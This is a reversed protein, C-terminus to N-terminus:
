AVAASTDPLAFRERTAWWVGGMIMGLPIELLHSYVAFLVVAAAAAVGDAGFAIMLGSALETVGIGGPTLPVMTLMRSLAYCAFVQALPLDIGFQRMCLWFIVFYVGLLGTVGVTLRLWNPRIVEITRGRVDVAVQEISQEPARKALRLLPASLRDLLRGVTRASRDNVLIAVALGAFLATVAAAFWGGWIMLDPLTRSGDMLLWVIAVFPLLARILMNWITTVIVSTGIDRHGFGWSRFVGCQAALGVAGGGPMADSVGSGILNAILAPFHRLGPLSGTLTFTYFWLAILMLVLLGVARAWGIMALQDVIQGWSTRTLWPLVWGLLMGAAGFGVIGQLVARLTRRWRATPADAALATADRPPGPRPAPELVDVSGGIM